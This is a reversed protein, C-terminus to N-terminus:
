GYQFIKFDFASSGSRLIKNKAPKNVKIVPIETFPHDIPHSVPTEIRTAIMSIRKAYTVLSLYICALKTM